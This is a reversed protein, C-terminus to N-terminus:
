TKVKKGRFYTVRQQNWQLYKEEVTRNPDRKYVAEMKRTMNTNEETKWFMLLVYTIAAKIDTDSLEMVHQRERIVQQNTDYNLIM